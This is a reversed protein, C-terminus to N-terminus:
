LSTMQELCSDFKLSHSWKSDELQSESLWAAPTTQKISSDVVFCSEIVVFAVNAVSVGTVVSFGDVAIVDLGAVRWGVLTVDVVSAFGWWLLLM